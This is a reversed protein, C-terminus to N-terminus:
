LRLRMLQKLRAGREPDWGDGLPVFVRCCINVWLCCTQEVGSTKGGIALVNASKRNLRALFRTFSSCLLRSLRPSGRSYYIRWLRRFSSWHRTQLEPRADGAQSTRIPSLNFLIGAFNYMRDLNALTRWSGLSPIINQAPFSMVMAEFKMDLFFENAYLVGLIAGWFLNLRRFYM